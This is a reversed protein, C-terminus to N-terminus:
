PRGNRVQGIAVVLSSLIDEVNEQWPIQDKLLAYCSKDILRLVGAAERVFYNNKLIKHSHIHRPTM